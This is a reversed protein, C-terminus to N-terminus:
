EASRFNLSIHGTSVTITSAGPTLTSILGANTITAVSTNSSSYAITAPIINGNIDYPYPTIQVQDGTFVGLPSANTAVQLYAVTNPGETSCALTFLLGTLILRRM